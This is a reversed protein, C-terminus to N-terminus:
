YRRFLPKGLEESVSNHIEFAWQQFDYFRPPLKAKLALYKERCRPCPISREWGKLWEPTPEKVGHLEAWKVPGWVKAGEPSCPSLWGLPKPKVVILRRAHELCIPHADDIELVGASVERGASKFGGLLDTPIDAVGITVKM